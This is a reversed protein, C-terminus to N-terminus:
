FDFTWLPRNCCSAWSGSTDSNVPVHANNQCELSCSCLLETAARHCTVYVLYSQPEPIKCHQPFFFLKASGVPPNADSRNLAAVSKSCWLSDWLQKVKEAMTQWYSPMVPGCTATSCHNLSVPRMTLMGATPLVRCGETNPKWKMMM